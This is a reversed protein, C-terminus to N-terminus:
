VNRDNTFNVCNTLARAEWEEVQTASRNVPLEPVIASHKCVVDATTIRTRNGQSSSCVLIVNINTKSFCGEEFSEKLTGKVTVHM